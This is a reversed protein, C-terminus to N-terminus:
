RRSCMSKQPWSRRCMKMLRKRMNAALFNTHALEDVLVGQAKGRSVRDVDSRSCRGKTNSKKRPVAEWRSLLEEFAKAAMPRLRSGIVVEEGRQPGALAESLMAQLNASERHTDGPIPKLNGRKKRPVSSELM